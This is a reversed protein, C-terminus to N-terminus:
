PESESEPEPEPEAPLSVPPGPPDKTIKLKNSLEDAVVDDLDRKAEPIDRKIAEAEALKRKLKKIKRAQKANRKNILTSDM